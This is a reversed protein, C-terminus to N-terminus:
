RSLNSNENIKRARRVIDTRNEITQAMYEHDTYCGELIHSEEGDNNYHVYDLVFQKGRVKAESLEGIQSLNERIEPVMELFEKNSHDMYYKVNKNSSAEPDKNFNEPNTETHLRFSSVDRTVVELYRDMNSGIREIREDINSISFKGTLKAVGYNFDKFKGEKYMKALEVIEKDRLDPYRTKPYNNTSM